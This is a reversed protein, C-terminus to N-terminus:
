RGRRDILARTLAVSTAPPLRVEPHELHTAVDIGLPEIAEEVRFKRRRAVRGLDAPLDLASPEAVRDFGGGVAAGAALVIGAQSLRADRGRAEFAQPGPIPSVERYESM